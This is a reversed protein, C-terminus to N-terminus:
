RSRGTVDVGLRSASRRLHAAAARRARRVDGAAIASFLVEHERQAALPRSRRHGEASWVPRRTDSFHLGLFEVFRSLYPNHSAAAVAHHFADDASVGDGRTHIATRMAELARRMAQLDDRTHRRAALEAAAVEVIARLEMLHRMEDRAAGGLILRFSGAGPKATVFAGAGQRTEISGDAKLRAVAERVVARSVGLAVALQHEAPLRTGPPYERGRIRADLARYVIESLRSPRAVQALEPTAASSAM